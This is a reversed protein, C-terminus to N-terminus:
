QLTVSESASGANGSSDTVTTSLTHPGAAFSKTAWIFSATVANGTKSGIVTGDVSVTFTNSSGMTGTASVSIAVKKGTVTSDAAPQTFSLPLSAGKVIITRTSPSPDNVGLSDIATFSVVHTGVETFTVSGPSALSSSAPTGAPFIWSYTVNTGDPDTASGSFDVSDGPSIALDETPSLITGKPTLDRPTSSLHIMKALSPVGAQNLLFLMYFGPPAISSNPPATATLGRNSSTYTLGIFRQDFDFSHSSSGLHILVASAIQATDPTGVKFPAGYGVESPASSITPRVAPIVDGNDDVTYLYAPSYVEMHQEYSGQMPNSGVVWVTADPMLIACSHYLRPYVAVGASTWTETAPDFLDAGLSATTPDEDTSSGGLALIKGTPLIVANLRSRAASMPPTMRWSPSAMSLDIIEATDTAMNLPPQRGGLAGGFIMVRPAYGDSPSLPLLVSSGGVRMNPYVTTAVNLTWTQTAPDFISSDPTDGSYFVTGNPLLHM